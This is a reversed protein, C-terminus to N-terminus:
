FGSPSSIPTARPHIGWGTGHPKATSERLVSLRLTRSHATAKLLAETMQELCDVLELEIAKGPPPLEPRVIM